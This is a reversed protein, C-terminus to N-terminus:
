KKLERILAFPKFSNLCDPHVRLAEGQAVYRAPDTPLKTDRLFLAGVDDDVGVLAVIM